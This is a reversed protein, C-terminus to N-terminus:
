KAFNVVYIDNEFNLIIAESLLM